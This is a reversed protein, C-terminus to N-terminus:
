ACVSSIASIHENVSFARINYPSNTHILKHKVNGIDVADAYTIGDRDARRSISGLIAGTILAVVLAAAIIAAFPVWPKDLLRARTPEANYYQIRRRRRRM